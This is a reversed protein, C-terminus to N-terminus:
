TNRDDDLKGLSLLVALHAGCLGRSVVGIRNGKVSGIHAVDMKADRLLIQLIYKLGKTLELKYLELLIVVAPATTVSKYLIDMM